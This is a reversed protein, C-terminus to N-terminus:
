DLCAGILGSASAILSACERFKSDSGVTGMAFSLAPGSQLGMSALVGAQRLVVAPKMAVSTHEPMQAPCPSLVTPAPMRIKDAGGKVCRRVVGGDRYKLATGRFLFAQLRFGLQVFLSYMGAYSPPCIM